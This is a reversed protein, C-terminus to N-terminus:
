AALRLERTRQNALALRAFITLDVHLQVRDLGRVRLMALAHERKLHAFEREILARRKYLSRFRESGRAIRPFNRGGTAVPLVTQKGKAGKMPIVPDVGREECERHVRVSDYGKDMACTEPQFGRAKAADLLPAVFMSENDRRGRM